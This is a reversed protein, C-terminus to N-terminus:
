SSLKKKGLRLGALTLFTGMLAMSLPEPTVTIPGNGEALFEQPYGIAPSESGAVPTYININELTCAATSWHALCNNYWNEADTVAAATGSPAPGAPSDLITWIAWSLVNPNTVGSGDTNAGSFLNEALWAVEFYAAATSQGNPNSYLVGSLNSLNEVTATWSEGSVIHDPYDDCTFNTAVAGSGTNLTGYYIGTGEDNYSSQTHNYTITVDSASAAMSFALVVALSLLLLSLKRKMPGMGKTELNYNKDDRAGVFERACSANLKVTQYSQAIARIHRNEAYHAPGSLVMTGEKWAQQVAGNL